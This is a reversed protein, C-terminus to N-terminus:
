DRGVLPMTSEPDKKAAEVMMEVAERASTAKSVDTRTLNLTWATFHTHADMLSYGLWRKGELDVSDSQTATSESSPTLSAIKGDEVVVTWTGLKDVVLANIFTVSSM